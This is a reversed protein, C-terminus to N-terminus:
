LHSTPLKLYQSLTLTQVGWDPNSHEGVRLNPYNEQFEAIRDMLQIKDFSAGFIDPDPKFTVSTGTEKSIGTVFLESQPIGHRFDQRFVKGERRIEVSLRESLANVIPM